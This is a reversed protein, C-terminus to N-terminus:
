SIGFQDLDEVIERKVFDKVEATEILAHPLPM